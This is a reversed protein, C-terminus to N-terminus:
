APILTKTVEAEEVSGLHRGATDCAQARKSHAIVDRSEERGSPEGEDDRGLQAAARVIFVEWLRNQQGSSDM